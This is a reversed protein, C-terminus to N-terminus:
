SKSPLEVNTDHRNGPLQQINSPRQLESRQPGNASGSTASLYWAGSRKSPGHYSGQNSDIDQRLGHNIRKERIWLFSFAALGALLPVGVGVGVGAGVKVVQDHNSANQLVGATCTANSADQQVSVTSVASSTSSGTQSTTPQTSTLSSTAPASTPAITLGKAFNTGNEVQAVARDWQFLNGGDTTDDCCSTTNGGFSCCWKNDNCRYLTNETDTRGLASPAQNTRSM